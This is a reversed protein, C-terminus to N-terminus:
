PPSTIVLGMGNRKGANQDRKRGDM